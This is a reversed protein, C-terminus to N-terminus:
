LWRVAHMEQRGLSPQFQPVVKLSGRFQLFDLRPQPEVRVYQLHAPADARASLIPSLALFNGIRNDSCNRLPCAAPNIQRESQVFHFLRLFSKPVKQAHGGLEGLVWENWIIQGTIRALHSPLPLCLLPQILRAFSSVRAPNLELSQFVGIEFRQPSVNLLELNRGIENCFSALTLAPLRRSGSRRSSFFLWHWVPWQGVTYPCLLVVLGYM